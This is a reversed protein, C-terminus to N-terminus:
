DFRMLYAAKSMYMYRCINLTDYLIASTMPLSPWSMARVKRKKTHRQAQWCRSVYCQGKRKKTHRQAQWCSISCYKHEEGTRPNTARPKRCGDRSCIDALLVCAEAVVVSLRSGRQALKIPHYMDM